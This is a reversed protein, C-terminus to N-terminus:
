RNVQKEIEIEIEIEMNMIMDMVMIVMVTATDETIIKTVITTHGVTSRFVM